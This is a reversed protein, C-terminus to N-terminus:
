GIKRWSGDLLEELGSFSIEESKSSEWFRSYPPLVKKIQFDVCSVTEFKSSADYPVLILLITIRSQGSVLIDSTMTWKPANPNLKESALARKGM